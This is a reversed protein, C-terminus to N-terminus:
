KVVEGAYKSNEAKYLIICRPRERELYRHSLFCSKKMKILIIFLTLLVVLVAIHSGQM